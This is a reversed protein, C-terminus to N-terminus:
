LNRDIIGFHLRPERGRMNSRALDVAILGGIRLGVGHSVGETRGSFLDTSVTDAFIVGVISPLAPLGFSNTKGVTEGDGSVIGDKTVVVKEENNVARRPKFPARPKGAPTGDQGPAPIAEGSSEADGEEDEGPEPTVLPVRLEIRGAAYSPSGGLEGFDYGRVTAPGGLPKQEHYPLNDSGLAVTGGIALSGARGLPLYQAVRATMRHFVEPMGRRRRSPSVEFDIGTGAGYEVSLRRGRRPMSAGVETLDLNASSVWLAQNDAHAGPVGPLPQVREVVPGTSLALRPYRGPSWGAEAMFGERDRENATRLPVGTTGGPLARSANVDRYLRGRFAIPFRAGVRPDEFEIGGASRRMGIRRQWEVRVKQARGLFNGDELSLDGYSRGDSNIGIGPEIRGSKRERVSVLVGVQNPGLVELEARVYEFVGLAWLRQFAHPHWRFVEGVRVGLARSVTGDRTRVSAATDVVEDKDVAETRVSVLVAEQASLLLVDGNGRSPFAAVAIASAVYGHENYWENVPRLTALIHARTVRTGILPAVAARVVRSPLRRAGILQVDRVLLRLPIRPLPPPLALAPRRRRASLAPVAAAPPPPPPAASPPLWSGGLGGVYAPTRM